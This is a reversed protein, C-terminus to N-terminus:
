YRYIVKTPNHVNKNPTYVRSQAPHSQEQVVYDGYNEEQVARYTESDAPNYKMPRRVSFLFLM